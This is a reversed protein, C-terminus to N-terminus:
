ERLNLVSQVLEKSSLEDINCIVPFGEGELATPSKIAPLIFFRAPTTYKDEFKALSPQSSYVTMGLRLRGAGITYCQSFLILILFPTLKKM